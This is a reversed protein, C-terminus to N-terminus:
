GRNRWAWFRIDSPAVTAKIWVRTIKFNDFVISGDASKVKGHINQGDLSFLIDNTSDNAMMWGITMFDFEFLEWDVGVSGEFYAMEHGTVLPM